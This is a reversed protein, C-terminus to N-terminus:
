CLSEAKPISATTGIKSFILSERSKMNWWLFHRDTQRFRKNIDRISDDDVLTLSIEAEYPCGEIDLAANAVKLALGEYDLGLDKDYEKEFALTM